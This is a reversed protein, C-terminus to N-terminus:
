PGGYPYGSARLTRIRELLHWANEIHARHLDQLNEYLDGLESEEYEIIFEPDLDLLRFLCAVAATALPKKERQAPVVKAQELVFGPLNPCYHKLIPLFSCDETMAPHTILRFLFTNVLDDKVDEDGYEMQHNVVALFPEDCIRALATGDADAALVNAFINATAVFAAPFCSEGDLGMVVGVLFDFGELVPGIAAPFRSVEKFFSLTEELRDDFCPQDVQLALFRLPESMMAVLCEVYGDVDTNNSRRSIGRAAAALFRLREAELEQPFRSTADAMLQLKGLNFQQEAVVDAFAELIAYQDSMDAGASRAVLADILRDGVKGYVASPAWHVMAVLIRVRSRVNRYPHNSELEELLRDYFRECDWFDHLVKQTRCLNEILVLELEPYRLQFAMDSSLNALFKAGNPSFHKVSLDMGVAVSMLNLIAGYCEEPSTAKILAEELEKTISCGTGASLSSRAAVRPRGSM